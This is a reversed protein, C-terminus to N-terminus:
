KFIKRAVDGLKIKNMVQPVFQDAAIVGITSLGALSWGVIDKISVKGNRDKESMVSYAGLQAQLERYEKTGPETEALKELVRKRQEKELKKISKAM